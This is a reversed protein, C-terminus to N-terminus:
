AIRAALVSRNSNLSISMNLSKCDHVRFAWVPAFIVPAYIFLSVGIKYQKYISMYSVVILVEM